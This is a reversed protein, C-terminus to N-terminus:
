NWYTKQSLRPMETRFDSVQRKLIL